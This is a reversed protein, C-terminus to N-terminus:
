PLKLKLKRESLLKEINGLLDSEELGADRVAQALAGDLRPDNLALLSDLAAARAEQPAGRDALLAALEDRVDDAKAGPLGALSGAARASATLMETSRSNLGARVMTIARAEHLDGLAILASPALPSESDRAMELFQPALDLAGLRGLGRVAASNWEMDDSTALIERLKGITGPERIAALASIAQERLYPESMHEIAYPYGDRIGHRGVLEAIQLKRLLDTEAPLQPQLAKAADDTNIRLLAEVAVWRVDPDNSDLMGALPAVLRNDARKEAVRECTTVFAHREAHELRLKSVEILGPTAEAPPFDGLVSIETVMPLASDYKNKARLTVEELGGMPDLRALAWEAGYQVASPADLPLQKLLPLVESQQGPVELAGLAHLRAGQEAFTAPPDSELLAQASKDDLAKPGLAGLAEFMAVRSQFNLDPKKLAVTLANAAAERLALQSLYDSNLLSALSIATQERVAPSSDSLHPLVAEMVGPTQAALLSRRELSTLLPIAAPGQQARLGNLVLVVKRPRDPTANVALLVKVTEILDDNTEHLPPVAQELSPSPRLIAYGQSSRGLMLLRLQGTKIPASDRYGQIGLDQSTLSLSERSFVGKLVQVPTFKFQLLTTEAKGGVIIRTQSVDLLRAVMVLSAEALAPELDLGRFWEEHAPSGVVGTLLLFLLVSARVLHRRYQRTLRLKVEM